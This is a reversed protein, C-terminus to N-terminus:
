PFFVSRFAKIRRPLYRYTESNTLVNLLYQPRLYYRHYAERSMKQLLAPTIHHYEFTGKGEYHGYQDWDTILLKGHRVIEDYLGTGPFPTAVLFQAYTPNVQIAFEITERMTAEDEELNGLMFFGMTKIGVKRCNEVATSIQQRTIKKGISRLIRENGSEIGLAVRYCGAARMKQLLELSALDVRIGNPCSWPIKLGNKLVLDCIAQVRERLTTFSDDVISIERVHEHEILQAWEAVVSEASRARFKSGFIAKYCFTCGYPCGRSTLLTGVPLRNGLAEQGRYRDLPPFLHRAPFPM